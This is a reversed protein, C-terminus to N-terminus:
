LSFYFDTLLLRPALCTHPLPDPQQDADHALQHTINSTLHSLILGREAAATAHRFFLFYRRIAAPTAASFLTSLQSHIAQEGRLQEPLKVPLKIPQPEPRPKRYGPM